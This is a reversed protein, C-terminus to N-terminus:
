FYFFYARIPIINQLLLINLLFKKLMINVTSIGHIFYLVLYNEKGKNKIELKGTM